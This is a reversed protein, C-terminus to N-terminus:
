LFNCISWSFSNSHKKFVLSAYTHNLTFNYEHRSHIHCFQTGAQQWGHLHLPRLHSDNDCAAHKWGQLCKGGASHHRSAWAALHLQPRNGVGRPLDALLSFHQHQRLCSSSGRPHCLFQSSTLFWSLCTPLFQSNSLFLLSSTHQPNRDTIPYHYMGTLSAELCLVQLSM